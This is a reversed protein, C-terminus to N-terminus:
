ETRPEVPCADRTEDFRARPGLSSPAAVEPARLERGTRAHPRLAHEGPHRHHRDPRLGRRLRRRHRRPCRRPRRRGRVGRDRREAGDAAGSREVPPGQAPPSRAHPRRRAGAAGVDPARTGLPYLGITQAFYGLWTPDFDDRCRHMIAYAHVATLAKKYPRAATLAEFVDCVRVLRSIASPEFRVIPRPYGGESPTMHHCFAAGIARPDIARQEVLIEAGLRPHQAMIRWEEPDLRGRKFLIEQPIRSKGIDHLLAATGVTVLDAKGLGAARAVQLALLAVRVSHGVTFSDIDDYSALALLRSPEVEMHEIAHEVVGAAREIQLEDGRSAAVHNDHLFSTMGRYEHIGGLRKRASPSPDSDGDLEVSINRIGHQKLLRTLETPGNRFGAYHLPSAILELFATLEEAGVGAHFVM